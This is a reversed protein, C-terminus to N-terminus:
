FDTMKMSAAALVQFRVDALKSRVTHKRAFATVESIEGFRFKSSILTVHFNLV